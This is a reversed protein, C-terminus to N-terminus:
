EEKLNVIQINTKNKVDSAIEVSEIYGVNDLTDWAYGATIDLGWRKEVTKDVIEFLPHIGEMNRIAFGKATVYEQISEKELSERLYYLFSDTGAGVGQVSIEIERQGKLYLNGENNVRGKEVMGINGDNIVNLKIYATDPIAGNEGEWIITLANGGITNLIYNVCDWFNNQLTTLEM